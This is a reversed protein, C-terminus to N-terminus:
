AATMAFSGLLLESPPSDHGVEFGAGNNGARRQHRGKGPNSSVPPGFRRVGRRIHRAIGLHWSALGSKGDHPSRAAIPRQGHFPLLGLSFSLGDKGPRSVTCSRSATALDPDALKITERVLAIWSAIQGEMVFRSISIEASDAVTRQSVFSVFDVGLSM